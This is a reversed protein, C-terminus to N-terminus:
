NGDRVALEVELVAAAAVAMIAGCLGVVIWFAHANEVGPVGGVNIGPRGTAFGMPLFFRAAIGPLYAAQGSRAILCGAIGPWNGQHLDACQWAQVKVGCIRPGTM